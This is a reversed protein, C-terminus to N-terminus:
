VAEVCPVKEDAVRRPVSGRGKWTWTGGHGDGGVVGKDIWEEAKREGARDHLVGVADARRLEVLCERIV